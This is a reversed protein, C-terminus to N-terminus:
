SRTVGKLAPLVSWNSSGIRHKIIVSEGHRESCRNLRVHRLDIETESEGATNRTAHAVTVTLRFMLSVPVSPLVNCDHLKLLRLRGANPDVFLLTVVILNVACM